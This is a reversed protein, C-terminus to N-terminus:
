AVMGLGKLRGRAADERAQKQEAELQKDKYESANVLLTNLQILYSDAWASSNELEKRKEKNLSTFFGKKDDAALKDKLGQAFKEHRSVCARMVEPDNVTEETLKFSKVLLDYDKVPKPYGPEGAIVTPSGNFDPTMGEPLVGDPFTRKITERDFLAVLRREQTIVDVVDRDALPHNPSEEKLAAILQDETQLHATHWARLNHIQSKAARTIQETERQALAEGIRASSAASNAAETARRANNEIHSLEGLVLIGAGVNNNSM